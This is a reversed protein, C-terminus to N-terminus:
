MGVGKAVPHILEADLGRGVARRSERALVGGASVLHPQRRRKKSIARKARTCFLTAKHSPILADFPSALDEYSSSECHQHSTQRVSRSQISGRLARTCREHSRLGFDSKTVPM